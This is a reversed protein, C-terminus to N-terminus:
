YSNYIKELTRQIEKKVESTPLKYHNNMYSFIVFTNKKTILYGSLSYNNSLTGSKAYVYPKKM